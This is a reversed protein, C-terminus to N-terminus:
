FHPKFSPCRPHRWGRQELVVLEAIHSCQLTPQGQNLPDLFRGQKCNHLLQREHTRQSCVAIEQTVGGNKTVDFLQM